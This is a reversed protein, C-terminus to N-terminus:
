EPAPEDRSIQELDGRFGVQGHIACFLRDEPRNKRGDFVVDLKRGCRPCDAEPFPEVQM